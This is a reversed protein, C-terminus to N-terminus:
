WQQLFSVPFHPLAWWMHISGCAGPRCCPWRTLRETGWCGTQHTKRGHSPRPIPIHGRASSRCRHRDRSAHSPATHCVRDPCNGRLRQSHHGAAGLPFGALGEAPTAESFRGQVPSAQAGEEKTPGEWARVEATDLGAQRGGQQGKSHVPRGSAAPLKELEGPCLNLAPVQTGVNDEREAPLKTKPLVDERFQEGQGRMESPGLIQASSEQEGERRVDQTCPDATTCFPPDWQGLAHHKWPLAPYRVGGRGLPWETPTM